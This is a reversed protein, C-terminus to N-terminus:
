TSLLIKERSPRSGTVVLARVDEYRPRHDSNLLDLAHEATMALEQGNFQRLITTVLRATCRRPSLIRNLRHHFTEFKGAEEDYLVEITRYGAPCYMSRPDDPHLLNVLCKCEEELRLLQRDKSYPTVVFDYSIPVHFYQRVVRGVKLRQLKVQISHLLRPLDKPVIKEGLLRGLCHLYHGLEIMRFLLIIPDNSVDEVLSNISKAVAVLEFEQPTYHLHDILAILMNPLMLLHDAMTICPTFNRKSIDADVRVIDDILLSITDRLVLLVEQAEPTIKDSTILPELSSGHRESQYNKHRLSLSQESDKYFVNGYPIYANTRKFGDPNEMDFDGDLGSSYSPAEGKKSISSSSTSGFPQSGNNCSWVKLKNRAWDLDADTWQKGETLAKLCNAKWVAVSPQKQHFFTQLALIHPPLKVTSSGAQNEPQSIDPEISFDSVNVELDATSNRKHVLMKADKLRDPSVEGDAASVSRRPCIRPRRFFVPPSTQAKRRLALASLKAPQLRPDRFFSSQNGTLRSLNTRLKSSGVSRERRKLQNCGSTHGVEPHVQVKPVLPSRSVLGTRAGQQRARNELSTNLSRIKCDILAKKENTSHKGKPNRFDNWIHPRQQYEVAPHCFRNQTNALNKTSPNATSQDQDIYLFFGNQNSDVTTPSSSHLGGPRVRYSEQLFKVSEMLPFATWPSVGFLETKNALHKVPRTISPSLFCQLLSLTPDLSLIGLESFNSPMSSGCRPEFSHLTYIRALGASQKKGVSIIPVKARGLQGLSGSMNALLMSKKELPMLAWEDYSMESGHLMIDDSINVCLRPQDGLFSLKARKINRLGFCKQLDDFTSDPDPRLGEPLSPSQVQFARPTM